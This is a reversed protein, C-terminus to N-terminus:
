VLRSDIGYIKFHCSGYAMDIVGQHLLTFTPQPLDKSCVIVKCGTTLSQQLHEVVQQWDDNFFATSHIFVHSARSLDISLFDSYQFQLKSKIAKPLQQQVALALQHRQKIYEIGIVERFPFCLAAVLCAKGTGSGLDYFIDNTSPKLAKLLAAFELFSIEGYTTRIDQPQAEFASPVTQYLASFLSFNAKYNIERKLQHRKFWRLLAKM